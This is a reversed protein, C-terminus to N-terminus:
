CFFGHHQRRRCRDLGERLLNIRGGARFRGVATHAQRHTAARRGIGYRGPSSDFFVMNTYGKLKWKEPRELRGPKPSIGPLQVRCRKEPGEIGNANGRWKESATALLTPRKIGRPSPKHGIESYSPLSHEMLLWQYARCHAAWRLNYLPQRSIYPTRARRHRLRTRHAPCILGLGNTHGVIFFIDTRYIIQGIIWRRKSLARKRISM